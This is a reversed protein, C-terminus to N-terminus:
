LIGLVTSQVLVDSILCCKSWDISIKKPSILSHMNQGRWGICTSIRNGWFNWWTLMEVDERLTCIHGGETQTTHDCTYM